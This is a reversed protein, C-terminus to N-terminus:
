GGGSKFVSDAFPIVQQAQKSATAHEVRHLQERLERVTQALRKNRLRLEVLEENQEAGLITAEATVQDAANDLRMLQVADLVIFLQRPLVEESVLITFLQYADV